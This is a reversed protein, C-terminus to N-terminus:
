INNRGWVYLDNDASRGGYSVSRLQLFTWILDDTLHRRGHRVNLSVLLSSPSLSSLPPLNSVISSNFLGATHCWCLLLYPPPHQLFLFFFSLSFSPRHMCAECRLDCQEGSAGAEWPLLFSSPYCCAKLSVTLARLLLLPQYFIGM